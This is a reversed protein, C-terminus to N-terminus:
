PAFTMQASPDPVARGRVKSRATQGARRLNTARARIVGDLDVGTRVGMGDLM